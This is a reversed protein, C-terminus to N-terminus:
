IEIIRMCRSYEVRLMERPIEDLRRQQIPLWPKDAACPDSLVSDWWGDDITEGPLSEDQSESRRAAERALKEFEKGKPM